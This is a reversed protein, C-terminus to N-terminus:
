KRNRLLPNTWAIKGSADEIELRAYTWEAPIRFHTGTMPEKGLANRWKAKERPGILRAHTVPSTEVVIRNGQELTISRFSPGTSSYFNGARISTM